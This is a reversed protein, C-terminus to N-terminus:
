LFIHIVSRCLAESVLMQGTGPRSPRPPAAQSRNGHCRGGPRLRAKLGSPVPPHAQGGRPVQSRSSKVSPKIFRGGSGEPGLAWQAPLIRPPAAPVPGAHGGLSEGPSIWLPSHSSRSFQPSPDGRVSGVGPWPQEPGWTGPCPLAVLGQAQQFGSAAEEWTKRTQPPAWPSHQAHTALPAWPGPLAAAGAGMDTDLFAAPLGSSLHGDHGRTRTNGLGAPGSHARLM